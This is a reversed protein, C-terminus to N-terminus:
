EVLVMIQKDRTSQALRVEISDAMRRLLLRQLVGVPLGLQHRLEHDLIDLRLHLTIVLRIFKLLELM